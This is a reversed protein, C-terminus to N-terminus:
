AGRWARSQAEGYTKSRKYKEYLEHSKSGPRKQNEQLFAPFVAKSPNQISRLYTRYPKTQKQPINTKCTTSAALIIAANNLHLYTSKNSKSPHHTLARRAMSHLLKVNNFCPPAQYSAQLLPRCRLFFIPLVLCTALWHHICIM